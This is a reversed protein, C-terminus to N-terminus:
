SGQVRLVSRAFESWFDARSLPGLGLNQGQRLLASNPGAKLAPRGHPLELSAIRWRVLGGAYPVSRAYTGVRNERSITLFHGSESLRSAIANPLAASRPCLRDRSKPPSLQEAPERGQTKAACLAIAPPAALLFSAKLNKEHNM